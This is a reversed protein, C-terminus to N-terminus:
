VDGDNDDDADDDDDNDDDDDDDDVVVPRKKKADKRDGVLRLVHIHNLTWSMINGLDGVWYTDVPFYSANLCKVMDIAITALCQLLNNYLTETSDRSLSHLTNREEQLIYRLFMTMGLDSRLSTRQGKYEVDMQSAISNYTGDPVPCDLICDIILMEAMPANNKKLPIRYLRTVAGPQRTGRVLADIEMTSAVTFSDTFLHDRIVVVLKTLTMWYPKGYVEKWRAKTLAACQKVLDANARHLAADSDLQAQKARRLKSQAMDIGLAM